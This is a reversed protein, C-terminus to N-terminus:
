VARSDGVSVCHPLAAVLLLVKSASSFLFCLISVFILVKLASSGSFFFGLFPSPPYFIRLFFLATKFIKATGRNVRKRQTSPRPKKLYMRHMAFGTGSPVRPVKSSFTSCWCVSFWWLLASGGM